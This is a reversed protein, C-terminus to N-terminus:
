WENRICKLHVPSAERKQADNNAQRLEREPTNEKRRAEKKRAADGETKGEREPTSKEKREKAFKRKRQVKNENSHQANINTNEELRKFQADFYSTLSKKALNNLTNNNAILNKVLVRNQSTGTSTTHGQKPDTTTEAISVASEGISTTQAPNM